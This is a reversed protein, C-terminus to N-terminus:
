RSDQSHENREKSPLPRKAIHALKADDQWRLETEIEYHLKHYAYSAHVGYENMPPNHAAEFEKVIALVWRAGARVGQDYDPRPSPSVPIGQDRLSQLFAEETKADRHPLDEDELDPLPLHGKPGDPMYDSLM